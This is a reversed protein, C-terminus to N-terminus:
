NKWIKIENNSESGSIIMDNLRAMSWIWKEHSKTKYSILNIKKSEIKFQRITGNVDGILFLDNTLKLICGNRCDTNFEHLISFKNTDILYVKKCGAVVVEDNNLKIIRDGICNINLNLNNLTKIKENKNLNYFVLSKPNTNLAYLIIENDKIELGDSLYNSDKFENIKEYKNNKNNLKWIKFSFDWSFTILKENKLEIIKSIYNKHANKIIQIEEYENINKIKLIKLTHNNKFSCAINKNKLQTFNWLEGLNNKIIIDPNFTEKNYVIFNSKFDGVALRGDDLTKLCTIGGENNNLTKINELNEFKFNNFDIETTKVIKKDENNYIIKILENIENIQNNLNNKIKDNIGNLNFCNNEINARMQYNIDNDFKKRKYFNIITYMFNIKKYINDKFTLINNELEKYLKRYNSFMLEIERIIEINKKMENEYYIIDSDKLENEIKGSNEEFHECRLCYNKNHNSCYGIVSNGNHEFCNNDFNIIIFIKHDEKLKHIEAHKSCFFKYCKSCYYLNKSDSTINENECITCLYYLISNIKCKKQMEDFTNSYTHNNICKISMFLKNNNTSINIFPVLSCKPCRFEKNDITNIQSMSSLSISM